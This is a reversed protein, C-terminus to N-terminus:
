RPLGWILPAVATAFYYGVAFHKRLVTKRANILNLEGGLQEGNLAPESVVTAPKAMEPVNM